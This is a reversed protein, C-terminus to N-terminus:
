LVRNIFEKFDVNLEKTFVMTVFRGNSHFISFLSKRSSASEYSIHYARGDNKAHISVGEDNNETDIVTVGEEKLSSTITSIIDDLSAYEWPSNRIPRINPLYDSLRTLNTRHGAFISISNHEKYQAEIYKLYERCKGTEINCLYSRDTITGM